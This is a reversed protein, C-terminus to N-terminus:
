FRLLMGLAFVDVDIKPGGSGGLDKFRQWELRLTVHETQDFRVGAGYTPATSHGSTWGVQPPPPPPPPPPFVPPIPVTNDTLASSTVSTTGYAVGVRGFLAVRNGIPWSGIASLDFASLEANESTSAAVNGLFNYGAEVAFNPTSAYGGFFKAGNDSSDCTIGAAAGACANRYKAESVSLGIYPQACAASAALTAIAFALRALM